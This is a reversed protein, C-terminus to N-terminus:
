NCCDNSNNFTSLSKEKIPLKIIVETGKNLISKYKITGNHLTIIEKSLVVGLGTGNPKTTYFIEDVKSLTQKNMGIGNDKIIIKINNKLVKVEVVAILQEEERKAELSNKLLNVFVQKMRNYDLNIYLEDQDMKLILESRNKKFLPTLIDMIEELLLRLDVEEKEIKNLKGLYSFDTIVSLSRNIEEEIIPLYKSSKEIGKKRIMELYGKCVSIPNKLEHVLKSLSSFLAKEKQNEQIVINLNIIEEAKKFLFVILYTSLIFTTLTLFINVLNLITLESEKLLLVMTFSILFSKIIVFVNILISERKKNKLTLFYIIIYLLYELVILYLNLNTYINYCYVLIITILLSLPFRKKLYALLLPINYLLFRFSSKDMSFKIVLFFSTLIVIDLFLNKEKMDMNRLYAIYILYICFPFLLYISSLIVDEIISM